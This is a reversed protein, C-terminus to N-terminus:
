FFGRFVGGEVGGLGLATFALLGRGSARLGTGSAYSRRTGGGKGLRRM